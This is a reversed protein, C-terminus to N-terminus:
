RGIEIEVQLNTLNAVAGPKDLAIEVEVIRADKRAAPDTGIQDQKQVKPRVRVVKGALPTPLASSSVRAGQGPRVFRADTEYVEAIAQMEAVRGLDVLGEQGVLEGPKAHVDLVRGAFPARITARRLEVQHRILAAEAAAIQSEAVSAEARRAACTAAGADADGRALEADEPSVLQRGLLDTKRNARKAAVEALVCAEQARSRAAQAALRATRLEANSETVRAQLVPATDLEGIPQGAQLDQGRQVHLRSLIAGSVADPMSPAGIRVVGGAPELRGLAAVGTSSAAPKAPAVQAPAATPAFAAAAALLTAALAATLRAATAPCRTPNLLTM